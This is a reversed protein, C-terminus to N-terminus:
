DTPNPDPPEVLARTVPPHDGTQPGPDNMSLLPLWERAM